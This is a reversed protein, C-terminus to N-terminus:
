LVGFPDNSSPRGAVSGATPTGQIVTHQPSPTGYIVPQQMQPHAAMHPQPVVGFPTVTANWVPVKM